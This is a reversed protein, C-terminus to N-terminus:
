KILGEAQQRLIEEKNEQFTKSDMTGIEAATFVKQASEPQESTGQSKAGPNVVKKGPGFLYSKSEALKEVAEEIGAVEGSDPDVEVNSLDALRFADEVDLPSRKSVEAIFKSRIAMDKLQSASKTAREESKEWLEKYKEQEKLKADEIEKLRNDLELNKKREEEAKRKWHLKQATVSRLDNSGDGDNEQGLTKDENQENQSTHEDVASETSAAAQEETGNEPM